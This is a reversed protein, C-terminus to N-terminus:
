SGNAVGAGLFKPLTISIRSLRPSLDSLNIGLLLMILGTVVTLVGIMFPSLSVFSGFLGLLGGFFGFGVIRGINFYLHPEFRHWKSAHIHEENWKASVGLIIGGVLAMCSSVGATMGVLFAMGVSPSSIDGFTGFSFGSKKAVMYLAFLGLAILLTELYKRPNKHFWPPIIEKGITYGNEAIISAITKEDPLEEKYSIEVTGKHESAHVKEVNEVGQISRELLLECSKCHMGTVDITLKKM